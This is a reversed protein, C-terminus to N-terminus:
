NYQKVKQQDYDKLSVNYESDSIGLLTDAAADAVDRFEAEM